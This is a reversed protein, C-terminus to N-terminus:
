GNTVDGIVRFKGLIVTDIRGDKTRVEIDFFYHGPNINTHKDTIFFKAYNDVNSYSEINMVYNTDYKNQKVSFTVRDGDQFRHNLLDLQLVANDGKVIELNNFKDSKIM